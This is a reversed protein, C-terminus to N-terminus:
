YIYTTDLAKITIRILVLKQFSIKWNGINGM